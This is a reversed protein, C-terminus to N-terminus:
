KPVTQSDRSFLLFVLAVTLVVPAIAFGLSVSISMHLLPLLAVTSFLLRRQGAHPAQTVEKHAWIAAVASVAGLDYVLSYPSVVFSALLLSLSREAAGKLRLLSVAFAVVAVGAWSLHVMMATTADYDWARMSGFVSPMMHLFVGEFKTMVLSQYPVNHQLYGLWSEVGFIIASLIVILTTTVGAAAIVVWRREWLLLLPILLGLQPKITLLGFAVGALIPSRSRLGLGYLMLAATIFGNQAAIVNCLIFAVLLVVTAPAIKREFVTVGHLFLLLTIWLFAVMSLAHPLFGLPWIMLLFSPPYSWNHWPYNEGFAAIMHAFYNEQGSFLDIVRGELVLRSAIWYNSFDTNTWTLTDTEVTGSFILFFLVLGFVTSAGAILILPSSFAQRLSLFVQSNM